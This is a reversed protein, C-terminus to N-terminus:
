SPETPLPELSAGRNWAGWGRALLVALTPLIWLLHLLPWPRLVLLQRALGYSVAFTNFLVCGHRFGGEPIRRALWAGLALGALVPALLAGSLRLSDLTFYGLALYVLATLTSEVVRLFSIGARYHAREFGQNHFYLSLLPGSITTAAYVTGLALGAPAALSRERHGKWRLGSAQLLVLPLLLAYTVVKMSGAGLAGLLLSGALIGPLLWLAIPRVRPAVAAFDRRASLFSGLNLVVELLVLVPNLARSAMLLLSLPVTLSSFGHGLIGNLTAAAFTILALLPLADM